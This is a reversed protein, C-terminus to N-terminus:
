LRREGVFEFGKEPLWPPMYHKEVVEAVQKARKKVDAYSLLNFPASQGPQHCGACQQFVIPAIDQNFTVTATSSLNTQVSEASHTTRTVLLFAFMVALPLTACTQLRHVGFAK